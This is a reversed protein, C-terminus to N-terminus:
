IQHSKIYQAVKIKIDEQVTVKLDMLYIDLNLTLNDLKVM